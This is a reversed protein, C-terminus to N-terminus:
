HRSDASHILETHVCLGESRQIEERNLDGSLASCLERLQGTAERTHTVRRLGMSQLGGAGVTWPIEWALFSSHTGRGVAPSRGSEPISGWSRADAASASQNQGVLAEQSAQTRM